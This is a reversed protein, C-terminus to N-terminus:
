PMNIFQTVTTYIKLEIAETRNQQCAITFPVVSVVQISEFM